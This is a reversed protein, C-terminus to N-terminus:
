HLRVTHALYCQPREIIWGNSVGRSYMTLQAGRARAAPSAHCPPTCLKSAGRQCCPLWVLTLRRVDAGEQAPEMKVGDEHIESPAETTETVVGSSVFAVEKHLHRGDDDDRRRKRRRLGSPADEDSSGQFVGYLRDDQTQQASKKRKTYVYEGGIWQGGEYDGSADLREFHQYEDM